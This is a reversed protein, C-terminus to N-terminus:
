SYLLASTLFSILITYSVAGARSLIISLHKHYILRERERMCVCVFVRVYIYIYKYIYIYM